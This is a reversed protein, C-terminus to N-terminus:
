NTHVTGTLKDKCYAAKVKLKQELRKELGAISCRDCATDENIYFNSHMQHCCECHEKMAEKELLGAFLKLTISNDGKVVEVKVDQFYPKSVVNTAYWKVAKMYAAKVSSDVFTKSAFQRIYILQAM